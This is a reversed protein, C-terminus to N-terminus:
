NLDLRKLSNLIKDKASNEEGYLCKVRVHEPIYREFEGGSAMVFLTIEFEDKPLVELMSILAKEIGGAIM